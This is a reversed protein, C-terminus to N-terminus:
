KCFTTVTHLYHLIKSSVNRWNFQDGTTLLICFFFSRYIRRNIDLNSLTRYLLDINVKNLVSTSNNSHINNGNNSYTHMINWQNFLCDTDFDVVISKCFVTGIDCVTLLVKTMVDYFLVSVQKIM